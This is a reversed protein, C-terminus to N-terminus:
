CISIKSHNSILILCGGIISLCLVISNDDPIFLHVVLYTIIIGWCFALIMKAFAKIIRCLFQFTALLVIVMMVIILDPNEFM